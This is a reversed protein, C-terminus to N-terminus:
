KNPLVLVDVDYHVMYSFSWSDLENRFDCPEKRYLLLVIMAFRGTALGFRTVFFPVPTLFTPAGM